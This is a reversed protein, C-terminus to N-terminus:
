SFARLANYDPPLTGDFFKCARYYALDKWLIKYFVRNKRVKSLREATDHMRKEFGPKDHGAFIFGNTGTRVYPIGAKRAHHTFETLEDLYLLPEGGTLSLAQVGREAATDILQKVKSTAMAKHPMLTTRRM